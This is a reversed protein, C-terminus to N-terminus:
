HQISINDIFVVGDNGSSYAELVFVLEEVNTWTSLTPAWGVSGFEALPLKRTQWNTTVGTIVFVSLEGCGENGLCLRKLEIKVTGPVPEDAKIDFSLYGGGEHFSSLDLNQLKIWFAGWDRIQYELRAVNGHGAEPVYSEELKNEPPQYAAGMGGGLNNVGYGSNFDAILIFPTLDYTFTATPSPLITPVVTATLTTTSTPFPTQTPHSTPISTLSASITPFPTSSSTPIKTPLTTLTHTFIETSMISPIITPTQSPLTELVSVTSVVQTHTTQTSSHRDNCGTIILLTCFLLWPEKLGLKM